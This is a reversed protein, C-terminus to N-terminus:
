SSFGLTWCVEFKACDDDHTQEWLNEGGAIADLQGDSLEVGQEKALEVLEGATKAAMLKEQFEPNKLDEFNM